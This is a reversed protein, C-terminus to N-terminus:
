RCGRGLIGIGEGDISGRGVGDEGFVHKGTMLLEYPCHRTGTRRAAGIGGGDISGSRMM